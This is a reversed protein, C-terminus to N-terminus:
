HCHVVFFIQLWIDVWRKLTFDMKFAVGDWLRIYFVYGDILRDFVNKLIAKM